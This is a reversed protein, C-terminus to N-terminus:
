AIRGMRAKRLKGAVEDSLHYSENDGPFDSNEVDSKYQKIAEGILEKLNVYERVFKARKGFSLGVLDNIVLIQGDCEAGAGIGITPINVKETILRAIELPIGELVMAFAGASELAQADAILEQAADITKGQVKYGGMRLYSQPTLGIHGLVPIEIEVLGRVLEARKTGGEVKVAEVGAEKV